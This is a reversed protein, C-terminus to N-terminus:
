SNNIPTIIEDSLSGSMIELTYTENKERHSLKILVYDWDRALWFITNRNKKEKQIRQVKIANLPGMPTMLIENGM